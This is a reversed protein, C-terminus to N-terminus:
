ASTIKSVNTNVFRNTACDLTSQAVLLNTLVFTLLIVLAFVHPKFTVKQM